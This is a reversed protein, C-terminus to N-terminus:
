AVTNIFEENDICRLLTSFARVEPALKRLSAHCSTCLMIHRFQRTFLDDYVRALHYQKAPYRCCTCLRTRFSASLANAASCTGCAYGGPFWNSDKYSYPIGCCPTLWYGASPYEKIVSKQETSRAKKSGPIKCTDMEIVLGILPVTFIETESCVPKRLERDSKRKRKAELKRRKGLAKADAASELALVTDMPVVTEHLDATKVSNRHNRKTCTYVNDQMSFAVDEYGTSPTDIRTTWSNKVNRCCCSFACRLANDPIYGLQAVSPKEWLRQHQLTLINANNLVVVRVSQYNRLLTFFRYILVYQKPDLSHIKALMQQNTLVNSTECAAAVNEAAATGFSKEIHGTFSHNLTNLVSLTETTLGILRLDRADIVDDPSHAYIFSQIIISEIPELAASPPLEPQASKYRVEDAKKFLTCLWVVFDTESLRFITRSTELHIRKFVIEDVRHFNGDVSFCHRAMDMNAYVRWSFWDRYLTNLTQLLGPVLELMYCLSESTAKAVLDENNLVFQILIPKMDEEGANDFLEDLVLTPGFSPAVTCHEYLGKLSLELELMLEKFFTPDSCFTRLMASFERVDCCRDPKKYQMKNWPFEDMGCDIYFNVMLLSAAYDPLSGQHIERTAHPYYQELLTRSRLLKQRLQTPANRQNLQSDTLLGSAPHETIKRFLRLHSNRLLILNYRLKRRRIPELLYLSELVYVRLLCALLTRHNMWAHENIHEPTIRLKQRADEHLVSAFNGCVVVLQALQEVTQSELWAVTAEFPCLVVSGFQGLLRHYTQTREQVWNEIQAFNRLIIEDARKLARLLANRQREAGKGAGLRATDSGEAAGDDNEGALFSDLLHKRQKKLAPDQWVFATGYSDVAASNEDFASHMRVVSQEFLVIVESPELAELLPEYSEMTVYSHPIRFLSEQPRSRRQAANEAYFLICETLPDNRHRVTAGLQMIMVDTNRYHHVPHPYYRLVPSVTVGLRHDEWEPGLLDADSIRRTTRIWQLLPQHSSLYIRLKQQIHASLRAQYRKGNSLKRLTNIKVLLCYYVRHTAPDPAPADYSHMCFRKWPLGSKSRYHPLQLYGPDAACALLDRFLHAYNLAPDNIRKQFHDQLISAVSLEQASGYFCRTYPDIQGVELFANENLQQFPGVEEWGPLWREGPKLRGAHERRRYEDTHVVEVPELGEFRGMVPVFDNRKFIRMKGFIGHSYRVGKKEVQQYMGDDSYESPAVLYYRDCIEASARHNSQKSKEVQMQIFLRYCFECQNQYSLTKSGEESCAVNSPLPTGHSVKAYDERTLYAIMPKGPALPHPVTLQAHCIGQQANVCAGFPRLESHLWLLKKIHHRSDVPKEVADVGEQVEQTKKNFYRMKESFLNDLKSRLDTGEFAKVPVRHMTASVPAGAEATSSLKVVRDPKLLQSAEVDSLLATKPVVVVAPSGDKERNEDVAPRREFTAMAYSNSRFNIRAHVVGPENPMENSAFSKSAFKGSNEESRLIHENAIDVCFKATESDNRRKTLLKPRKPEAQVSEPVLPASPVAAPRKHTATAAAPGAASDLTAPLHASNAIHEDIRGNWREAKKELPLKAAVAPTTRQM